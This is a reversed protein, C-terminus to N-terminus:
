DAKLAALKALDLAKAAKVVEDPDESPQLRLKTLFRGGSMITLKGRKRAKRWELIAPQGDIKIGKKVGETSDQNVMQAMAFGSRLMPVLWADAIEVRLKRDGSRYRRKVTSVKMAGMASTSGKLEGDAEFGGLKDPLLPALKRWNVVDGKPKAGAGGLAKAAEALAKNVQGQATKAAEGASRASEGASESGSSAQKVAEQLAQAVKEGAVEEPPPEKKKCAGAGVLLLAGLALSLLKIQKM